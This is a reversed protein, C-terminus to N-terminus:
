ALRSINRLCTRPALRVKCATLHKFDVALLVAVRCRSSWRDHNPLVCSMVSGTFSMSHMPLVILESGPGATCTLLSPRTRSLEAAASMKCVAILVPHSGHNNELLFDDREASIGTSQWIRWGSATPPIAPLTSDLQALDGSQFGLRDLEAARPNRSTKGWV